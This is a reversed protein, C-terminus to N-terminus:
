SYSKVKNGKEDYVWIEYCYGLNKGANQKLFINDKKKEATWTSKVEICLQKSPIFIDVYHRHKKGTDDVYWIEPVNSTGNIIDTEQYEQILEDLAYNEYGQIKLIKGSPMIYDKILYSSKSCKDAIEPIQSHHEVGYKIMNTQKIKEKIEESQFPNDVGYKKQFTQKIKEKVDKSQFHHDVDYKDLNTQKIKEKIKENQISHEVGFKKLMTQKIKEKVDESQFPNEVGYKDLNTQKIKEKIEESQLPHEVGYKDLSTQKIKEKVDESQFHHEVGYKHLSTQKKKNQIDENQSPNEVGFNQLMTQKIKEKVDENQAIHEIGYKKICTDIRKNNGRKKTCNSCFTGIRIMGRFSKDFKELCGDTKCKGKIKTERNIKIDDSISDYEINNESCYQILTERNYSKFSM